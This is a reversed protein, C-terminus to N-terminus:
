YLKGFSVHITKVRSRIAITQEENIGKPFCLEFEANYTIFRPMMAPITVTGHKVNITSANEYDLLHICATTPWHLFSMDDFVIGDTMSDLKKLDDIHRVLLPYRFHDLAFSTKGCRSPGHLYIAKKSVQDHRWPISYGRPVRPSRGRREFVRVLNSEIQRGHLLFDRPAEAILIRMAEELCASNIAKDFVAHMGGGSNDGWEFMVKEAGGEDEGEAGSYADTDPKRCYAIAQMRSGKRRELHVTDTQMAGKAGKYTVANVFEIYGQWHLRESTPCKELGCIIYKVAPKASIWDVCNPDWFTSSEGGEETSTFCTFVYNRERPKRSKEEDRNRNRSNTKSSTPAENQVTTHALLENEEREWRQILVDLDVGM